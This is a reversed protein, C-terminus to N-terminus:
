EAGSPVAGATRHGPKDGGKVANRAVVERMGTKGTVSLVITPQQGAENDVQRVDRWKLTRAEGVRIGTNGLILVYNVLMLRDRRVAKNETKIFERLHRVFKRWDAADFHTRRSKDGSVKPFRPVATLYGQDVSWTLFHKLDSSIRRVTNPSLRQKSSLRTLEGIISSILSTDVDDATKPRLFPMIRQILLIKNHVSQRDSDPELHRIYAELVPLLRKANPSEGTLSRVLMQNYLNDAFAYAAHEDTTKTSRYVYGVAGPVKVRCFWTAKKYDSRISLHIAGDKFVKSM